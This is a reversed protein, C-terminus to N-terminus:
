PKLAIRAVEQPAATHVNKSDFEFRRGRISLGSRLAAVPESTELAAAMLRVAYYGLDANLIPAENHKQKFRQVFDPDFTTRRSAYLQPFASTDFLKERTADGLSSHGFITIHNLGVEQMRRLITAYGAPQGDIYVVDPNSKKLQLVLAAADPVQIESYEIDAVFERGPKSFTQRLEAALTTGFGSIFHIIAARKLGLSEIVPEYIRIWDRLDGQLLFYNEGPIHDGNLLTECSILPIGDRESAKVIANIWWSGGIIGQIHDVSSLKAYAAAAHRTDSQDDEVILEIDKGEARLESVALEAGRLVANGYNAAFSTLSGIFGLRIKKQPADASCPVAMFFFWSLLLAAIRM